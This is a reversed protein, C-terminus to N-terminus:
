LAAIEEPRRGKRADELNARAQALRREAEDRAAKEPTDDLFFLPDGAKVQDGRRVSLKQLAGALPSAVYVYEGEVYGQLHDSEAPRCGTLLALAALLPLDFHLFRSMRTLAFPHWLKAWIAM